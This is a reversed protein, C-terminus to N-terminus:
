EYRSKYEWSLATNEYGLSKLGEPKPQDALALKNLVQLMPQEPYEGFMAMATYLMTCQAKAIFNTFYVEGPKFIFNFGFLGRFGLMIMEKGFKRAYRKCEEIELIESNYEDFPFPYVSKLFVNGDVFKEHFSAIWLDDKFAVGSLSLTRCDPIYKTVLHPNRPNDCKTTLMKKDYAVVGGTGGVRYDWTIYCPPGFKDLLDMAEFIDFAVDGEAVPIELKQALRYNFIKDKFDM